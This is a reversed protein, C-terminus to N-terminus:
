YALVPPGQNAALLNDDIRELEGCICDRACAKEPPVCNQYVWKRGDFGSLLSMLEVPTKDLEFTMHRGMELFQLLWFDQIQDM